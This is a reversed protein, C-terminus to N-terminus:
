SKNKTLLGQEKMWNVSENIALYAPRPNLDLEAQAKSSDFWHYLISSWANESNLPGKQGMKELQDGVRGIAKVLWNPLPIKPALVGASEAILSFLEKILLNEGSLIYREGTRGRKWAEVIAPVVDHISIVNVGGSTYFPFRGQAVKVQVKRSGKKADGAGYITSPNVIVADVQSQQCARRVLEEAQRKTEFYGLDLQSINFKSNESLPKSGDFSAGIATVSSLHLLRSVGQKEVAELVHATGQVNVKEMISRMARSYGVVGALHFVGDVGRCADIVSALETVDGIFHEVPLDKIDEIDSSKRRLIRVQYGQDVLYKTLWSGLFGTAGTVLVTKM